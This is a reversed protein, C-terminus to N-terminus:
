KDVEKDAERVPPYIRGEYREMGDDVLVTVYLHDPEDHHANPELDIEYKSIDTDVLIKM